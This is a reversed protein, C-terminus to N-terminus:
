LILLTRCGNSDSHGNLVVVGSALCCASSSIEDIISTSLVTVHKPTLYGNSDPHGDLVVSGSTFCANSSIEGTISATPITARQSCPPGNLVISPNNSFLVWITFRANSSIEDFLPFRLYQQINPLM